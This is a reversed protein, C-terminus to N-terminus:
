CKTRFFYFYVIQRRLRDHVVDAGAPDRHRDRGVSHGASVGPGLPAGPWSAQLSLAFPPLLPPSLLPSPNFKTWGWKKLLFVVNNNDAYMRVFNLQVLGCVRMGGM